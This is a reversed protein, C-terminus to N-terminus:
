QFYHEDNILWDILWDLKIILKVVGKLVPKHLEFNKVISQHPLLWVFFTFISVPM